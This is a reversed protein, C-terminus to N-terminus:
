ADHGGATAEATAEEELDDGEAQIYSKEKYFYGVPVFLIATILITYTWFWFYDGGELTDQGGVTISHSIETDPIDGRAADVEAKGDDGRISIIRQELWDYPVDAQDQSDKVDARSVTGRLIVDWQTENKGDAGASTIRFNNRSLQSYTFPNGYSDTENALLSQAEEETPLAKDADDTASAFFAEEILKSANALTENDSTEVDELKNFANFQLVIDDTTGYEGDVGAVTITKGDEESGGIPRATTKFKWNAVTGETDPEQSKVEAAVQNVGPVQISHNVFSTFINGLSVSFLWVAMIVSKMTKPAQTYSFELGTISIMVEGSTLLVYAWLQWAISPTAGGDILDQAMAVVAFSAATLFFGISIKRISTLRFVKDVSPYIVFQFLPILMMVLIPNIVQIQSQLWEIGLFRRDMNEAQIVWSSGTQDFLGWFVAVFAYITSLKLLAFVGERSFTEKFFKMGGAPVHIFKNRGMWFLLTALAMLVGPVGFAVHPGYWKLLVPTLWTSATSGFNIAFYFWQFVRTMLHSNKKGFQDGVHASVCPKIGGSGLAILFLGLLLWQSPELGAGGMLALALHGLCYVISLSLITRYKGILVDSLFSGLIPFFYTAAVFNHYYENARADSMETGVEGDVMYHLYKTMFVVLITRMGYFSFREAAENGIIYKVGKPLGATEEPVSRYKGDTM